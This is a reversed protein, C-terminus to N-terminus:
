RLVSAAMRVYTHRKGRVAISYHMINEPIAIGNYGADGIHYLDAGAMKSNLAIQRITAEDAGEQSTGTALLALAGHRHALDVMSKAADLTIGPITGPSPLLIIDAGAEIFQVITQEEILNGGAEDAVGAGHMKGAMILADKGMVERATRIAQRIERNTVGTKPNGTLCLFDFGLRKAEVFTEASALRGPPLPLLQEAARAQPDVPELNLGVPRGILRKLEHVTEDPAATLGEVHPQFVDFLNLLIMDAGFAAALEANTVSPYLPSVSSIVEAVLVRGESAKIARKVDQGTMRSFDSATCDLLRKM